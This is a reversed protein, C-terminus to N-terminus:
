QASRAIRWTTVIKDMEKASITCYCTETGPGNDKGIWVRASNGEGIIDFVAGSIPTRRLFADKHEAMFARFDKELKNKLRLMKADQESILLDKLHVRTSM